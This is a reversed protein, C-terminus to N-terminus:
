CSFKFNLELKSYSFTSCFNTVIKLYCIDQFMFTVSRSGFDVRLERDSRTDPLHFSSFDGNAALTTIYLASRHATTGRPMRTGSKHDLLSMGGFLYEYEFSIKRSQKGKGLEHWTTPENDREVFDKYGDQVTIPHVLSSDQWLRVPKPLQNVIVYRPSFRVIKTFNALKGPAVSITASVELLRGDTCHMGIVQSVGVSDLSFGRSWESIYRSEALQLCLKPNGVFPSTDNYNFMFALSAMRELPIDKNMLTMFDELTIDCKGSSSRALAGPRGPFITRVDYSVSNRNSYDVPRSGDKSKSLVTGSVYSIVKEQKYRLSHETTNLIWYPCYVSIKRQGGGGLINNICLTLRQGLRDVVTTETAVNHVTYSHKAENNTGSHEISEHTLEFGLKKDTSPITTNNVRLDDTPTLTNAAANKVEALRHLGRDEDTELILAM